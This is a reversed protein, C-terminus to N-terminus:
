SHPLMVCKLSYNFQESDVIHFLTTQYCIREGIFLFEIFGALTTQYCTREGIFVYEILGALITQYCLREGIFRAPM